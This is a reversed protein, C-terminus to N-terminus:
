VREHRPATLARASERAADLQEIFPHTNAYDQCQSHAADMAELAERLAGRLRAVEAEAEAMKREADIADRVARDAMRKFEDRAGRLREVEAEAREREAGMARFWKEAEDNRDMARQRWENREDRLAANEDSLARLMGSVPHENFPRDWHSANLTAIAREVAEPSTDPTDNM